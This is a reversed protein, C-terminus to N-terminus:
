DKKVPLCTYLYLIAIQESNYYEVEIKRRVLLKKIELRNQTNIERLM